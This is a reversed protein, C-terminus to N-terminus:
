LTSWLGHRSFMSRAVLGAFYGGQLIAEATMINLFTRFFGFGADISYIISAILVLGVFILFVRLRLTLGVVFGVVSLGVAIYGIM